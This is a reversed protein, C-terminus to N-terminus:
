NYISYILCFCFYTKVCKRSISFQTPTTNNYIWYLNRRGRFIETGNRMTQKTIGWKKIQTTKHIKVFNLLSASVCTLRRLKSATIEKENLKIETEPQNKFCGSGWNGMTQNKIKTQNPRTALRMDNLM